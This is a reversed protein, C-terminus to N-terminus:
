SQNPANPADIHETANNVDQDHGSRDSFFALSFLGCGLSVSFFIGLITSVVLHVQLNGTSALYVVAGAAMVVALIAVWMLAKKFEATAQGHNQAMGASSGSSTVTGGHNQLVSM